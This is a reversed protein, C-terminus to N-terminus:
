SPFNRRMFILKAILFLKQKRLYLHCFYHANIKMDFQRLIAFLALFLYRASVYNRQETFVYLLNNSAIEFSCIGSLPLPM